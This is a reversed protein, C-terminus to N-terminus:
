LALVTSIDAPARKLEEEFSDWLKQYAEIPVIGVSNELLLEPDTLGGRLPFSVLPEYRRSDAQQGNLVIRSLARHLAPEGDQQLRTLNTEANRSQNTSIKYALEMLREDASNPRNSNLVLARLDAKTAAWREPLDDILMASFAQFGRQGESGVREVKASLPRGTRERFRGIDYLLAALIITQEHETM